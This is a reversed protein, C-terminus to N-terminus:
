DLDFEISLEISLEIENSYSIRIRLSEFNVM